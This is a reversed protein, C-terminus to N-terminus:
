EQQENGRSTTPVSGAGVIRGRPPSREGDRPQVGCSGVVLTERHGAVGYIWTRATGLWLERYLEHSPGRRDQLVASKAPQGIRRERRGTFISAECLQRTGCEVDRLLVPDIDHQDGMM